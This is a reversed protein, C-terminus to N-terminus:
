RALPSGTSSSATAREDRIPIEFATSRGQRQYTDPFRNTEFPEGLPPCEYHTNRIKGLLRTSAIRTSM